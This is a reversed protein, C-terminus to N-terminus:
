EGDPNGIHTETKDKLKMIAAFDEEADKIICKLIILCVVLFLFIFLEVCIRSSDNGSLLSLGLILGICICFFMLVRYLIKCRTFFRM